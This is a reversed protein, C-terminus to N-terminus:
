RIFINYDIIMFNLDMNLAIHQFKATRCFTTTQPYQHNQIVPEITIVEYDFAGIYQVVM